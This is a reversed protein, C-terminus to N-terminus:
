KLRDSGPASHITAGWPGRGQWVGRQERQTNAPDYAAQVLLAAQACAQQPRVDWPCLCVGLSGPLAM